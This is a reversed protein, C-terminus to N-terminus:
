LAPAAAGSEPTDRAEEEMLADIARYLTTFDRDAMGHAMARSLLRETLAGYLGTIELEREMDVAM